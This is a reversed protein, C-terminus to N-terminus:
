NLHAKLSICNGLNQRVRKFGYNKHGKALEVKEKSITEIQNQITGNTTVVGVESKNNTLEM